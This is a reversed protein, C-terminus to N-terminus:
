PPARKGATLREKYCREFVEMATLHSSRKATVPVQAVGKEKFTYINYPSCLYAHLQYLLAYVYRKWDEEKQYPPTISEMDEEEEEEYDNDLSREVSPEISPTASM